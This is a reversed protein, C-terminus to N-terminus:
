PRFVRDRHYKLYESQRTASRKRLKGGLRLISRDEGSLRSSILMAGHEDFSILGDNFLADLNATLPLGNAPDLREENNSARWPKIHSARLVSQVTSGVVACGGWQKLVDQRFRGQGRRAQVLAEKETPSLDSRRVEEVDADIDQRIVFDQRAVSQIANWPDKDVQFVTGGRARAVSLSTLLQHHPGGVWLPETLPIYRVGVREVKATLKPDVPETYYPNDADPRLDPGGVIEGLAVIGRHGQRDRRQWIIAEHGPKIPRGKAQWWDIPLHEIAEFIRYKSPDLALAWYTPSDMRKSPNKTM